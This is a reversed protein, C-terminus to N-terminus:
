WTVSGGANLALNGGDVPLLSGTVFASADSALFIVPGVVDQPDGFRGLPIGALLHNPLAPDTKPDSLWAKVAPSMMQVPQIANVRIKHQAWEVALERTFANIGGKSVSYAFNGRGLASSGAISSLNIISGGQGQAIMRRGAAQACLFYGTLNVSLVRNWDDLSLDEPRYRAIVFPDNVLIDVRGFSRDVEAFLADIDASQSIDCHVAVARRGLAGIQRVTEAM